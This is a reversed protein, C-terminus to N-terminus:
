PPIRAHQPNTDTHIVGSPSKIRPEQRKAALVFGFIVLFFLALSLGLLPEDGIRWYRLAEWVLVLCAAIAWWSITGVVPRWGRWRRFMAMGPYGFILFAVPWVLVVPLDGPKLLALVSYLAWFFILVGGAVTVARSRFLRQLQTEIAKRREADPTLMVARSWDEAAHQKRGLQEYSRGRKYYADGSGPNLEILRNFDALAREYQGRKLFVSGRSSIALGDDPDAELAQSFQEIARDFEGDHFYAIGREVAASPIRDATEHGRATRDRDDWVEQPDVSM